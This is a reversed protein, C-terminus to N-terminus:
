RTDDRALGFKDLITKEAVYDDRAWRTYTETNMYVVSQDFSDLMALVKPDELAGKFADHLTKVVAANMGSPGGIGWPSDNAIGFGLESLTPVSPWRKSRKSGYTALLRLRGSEVQPAWTASVRWAM